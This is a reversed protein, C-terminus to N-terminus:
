DVDFARKPSKMSRWPMPLFWFSRVLTDYKDPDVLRESTRNELSVVVCEYGHIGLFYIRNPEVGNRSAVRLSFGQHSGLFVAYGDLRKVEEWKGIVLKHVRLSTRKVYGIILLQGDLDPALHYRNDTSHCPLSSLSVSTVSPEKGFSSAVNDILDHIAYVNTFDRVYLTEGFYAIDRPRTEFLSSELFKWSDSDYEQDDGSVKCWTLYPSWTLLLIVYCDMAANDPSCSLVARALVDHRSSLANALFPPHDPLSISVNTIPNLLHMDHSGSGHHQESILLWGDFSTLYHQKEIVSPLNSDSSSHFRGRLKRRLLINPM